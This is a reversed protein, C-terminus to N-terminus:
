NPLQVAQVKAIIGKLDNSIAELQAKMADPTQDSASISDVIAVVSQVLGPILPILIAALGM